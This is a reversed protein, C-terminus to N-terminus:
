QKAHMGVIAARIEIEDAVVATDQDPKIGFDTRKIAFQTRLVLLDGEVGRLRAGAKDPLYHVKVDLTLPRTTGRCTFDGAVTLNWANEGAPSVSKVEKIVYEISKHEEVNLWDDDHLVQTMRPNTMKVSAADVTITGKTAKPDAPDFKVKGSIGTATGLFPEVTSDLVFSIANVGKPDKFDFEAASAVSGAAALAAGVLLMGAGRVMASMRM